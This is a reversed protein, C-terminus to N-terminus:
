TDRCDLVMRRFRQASTPRQSKASSPPTPLMNTNPSLDTINGSAMDVSVLKARAPSLDRHRMKVRGGASKASSERSDSSYRKETPVLNDTKDTVNETMRLTHSAKMPGQRTGSSTELKKNASYGGDRTKLHSHDTRTGKPSGPSATEDPVTVGASPSRTDTAVPLPRRFAQPAFPAKVQPLKKPMGDVLLSKEMKSREQQLDAITPERSFTGQVEARYTAEDELCDQLFKIDKLLMRTEEELTSRLHQVVEDFHLFNLKDNMSDIEESLTSAASIRDSGTPTVIMPTESGDRSRATGPRSMCRSGSRATDMAYEIIETCHKAELLRDPNLGNNKAKERINEAFFNIEQVLRDRLGPPEPLKVRQNDNTEDRYDRWIELLVDIEQHLELSQDVMSEGLLNKIEDQEHKPVHQEVLQWLSIPPNYGQLDFPPEDM